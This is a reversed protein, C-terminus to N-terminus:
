AKDQAGLGESDGVLADDSVREANAILTILQEIDKDPTLTM